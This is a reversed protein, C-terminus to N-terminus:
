WEFGRNFVSKAEDQIARWINSKKKPLVYTQEKRLVSDAVGSSKNTYPNQVMASLEKSAFSSLPRMRDGVAIEIDEPVKLIDLIMASLVTQKAWPVLEVAAEPGPAILPDNRILAGTLMADMSIQALSNTLALAVQSFRSNDLRLQEEPTDALLRPINVEITQVIEGQDDQMTTLNPQWPQVRFILKSETPPTRQVESYDYVNRFYLVFPKVSDDVSSSGQVKNYRIIIISGNVIYKNLSDGHVGWVFPSTNIPFTITSTDTEGEILEVNIRINLSYATVGKVPTRPYFNLAHYQIPNPHAPNRFYPGSLEPAVVLVNDPNGLNVSNISQSLDSVIQWTEVTGTYIGATFWSTAVAPSQWEVVIRKEAPVSMKMPEFFFASPIDQEQDKLSTARDSSLEWTAIIRDLDELAQKEIHASHEAQQSIQALQGILRSATLAASVRRIGGAFLDRNTYNTLGPRAPDAFMLEKVAGAGGFLPLNDEKSRAASLVLAVRPDAERTIVNFIDLTRVSQLLVSYSRVLAAVEKLEPSLAELEEDSLTQATDKDVGSGVGSTAPYSFRDEFNFTAAM